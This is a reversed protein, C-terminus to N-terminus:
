NNNYIFESGYIIGNCIVDLGPDESELFNEISTFNFKPPFSNDDKLSLIPIMRRFFYHYAYKKALLIQDQNLKQINNINKLLELYEHKTNADYTIGKQKIWADGAVIIPIGFPALEVGTKTGYLLVVKSIDMLNYTSFKSDHNIIVINSPLNSYKKNIENLTTQRNGVKVEHPHIRIILQLNSNLIFFDITDFIWELMNPYANSKYFLQADWLVNTLLGFVPMSPNLNLENYLINKQDINQFVKDPTIWSWDGGGQRRLNLYDFLKKELHKNWEINIWNQKPESIITHHYTDNHSFIFTRDRYSPSWNVVKINNKRAVAGVVGQPVYIGHHAVVNTIEFKKYIKELALASIISSTLYKIAVNQIEVKDEEDFIAKGYFRFLGARVQEGLNLGYFQFDFCEDISLNKSIKMAMETDEKNIFNSLRILEFPLNKYVHQGCKFCNNCIKNTENSTLFNEVNRFDKYMMAECAPLAGDCLLIQVKIGSYHLKTAILSDFSTVIQNGGVHTAFLVSNCSKSAINNNKFIINDWPNYNKRFLSKIKLVIRKM